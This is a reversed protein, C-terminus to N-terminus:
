DSPESGGVRMVFSDKSRVRKSINRLKRQYNRYMLESGDEIKEYIPLLETVGEFIWQVNVGKDGGRYPKTERLSFTLAKDFAEEISTAEMLITNEWALFKQEPDDDGAEALEVFRLVYSAIYWGIPSINKDFAM